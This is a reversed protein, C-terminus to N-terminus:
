LTGEVRLLTQGIASLDDGAHRRALAATLGDVTLDGHEVRDPLRDVLRAGMNRQNEYRRGKGGVGDHFRRIGSDREDDADGFPDGGDVHYAGVNEHLALAHAQDSGVTGAHDRRAGGFDADHGTVDVPGAADAHDGTGSGQGVFRDTLQAREAD